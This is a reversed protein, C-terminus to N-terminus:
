ATGKMALQLKRLRTRLSSDVMRSGVRVVLGGVLLPDVKLSVAVKAGVAKKLAGTVATVQGESLAAASNVEATIEGRREALLRLYADIIAGLAFLRRNGAVVGVLRRTIDRAGAKELIALIARTQDERRLLPSGILRRLDESSAILAGLDSLDGAVEDLQGEDSALGYLATAYRAAIAGTVTTEASVRFTGWGQQVPGGLSKNNKRIKGRDARDLTEPDPRRNRIM